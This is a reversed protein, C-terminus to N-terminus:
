RSPCSGEAGRIGPAACFTSQPASLRTAPGSDATSCPTHAQVLVRRAELEGMELTGRRNVLLVARVVGEKVYIVRFPVSRLKGANDQSRVIITDWDDTYGVINLDLDFVDSFFQAVRDFASPRGALTTGLAEGQDLANDWHEVHLRGAIPDPFSTLDGIAYVDPHSTRLYEDVVIARDVALGAATALGLNLVAGVGAVVLDAPHSEGSELVVAEVHDGGRLENVRQGFRLTVGHDRYYGEIFASVIEPVVRPWVRPGTDLVTCEVGRQTLVSAVEMGIFGGGILVARRADQCARRLLQSSALSRLYFAGPLTGGKLSLRRSRAGTALVATAFGLVEGDALHVEKAQLDLERVPTDLLLDIQNEWYFAAPHVFVTGLPEEGLLYDKSLPPRNVPLDPDASVVLIRGDGGVKRYKAAASAGAVGGGIIVIDYREM